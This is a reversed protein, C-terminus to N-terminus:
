GGIKELKGEDLREGRGGEEGWYVIPFLYEGLKTVQATSIWAYPALTGTISASIYLGAASPVDEESLSNIYVGLLEMQMHISDDEADTDIGLKKLVEAIRDQLIMVAKRSPKTKWQDYLMQRYVLEDESCGNWKDLKKMM